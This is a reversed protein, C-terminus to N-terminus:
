NYLNIEFEVGTDPNHSYGHVNLNYSDKLVEIVKEKFQEESDAEIELDDVTITIKGYGEYIM